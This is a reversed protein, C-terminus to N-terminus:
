EYRLQATATCPAGAKVRVWHAAYGAPFSHRLTEGPNVNFRQYVHWQGSAYFDVEVTFEVSQKADHSLTLAKRDYGTM